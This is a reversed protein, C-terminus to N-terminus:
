LNWRVVRQARGLSPGQSDGGYGTAEAAGPVLDGRGFCDCFTVSNSLQLPAQRILARRVGMSSPGNAVDGVDAVGRLATTVKALVGPRTRWWPWCQANVDTDPM